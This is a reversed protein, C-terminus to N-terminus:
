SSITIAHPESVIEIRISYPLKKVWDFIEASSVQLPERRRIPAHAGQQDGHQAQLAEVAAEGSM